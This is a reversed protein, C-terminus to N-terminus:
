IHSGKARSRRRRVQWTDKALIQEATVGHKAAVKKAMRTIDEQRNTVAAAFRRPNTKKYEKVQERLELVAATVRGRKDRESRLHGRGRGREFGPQLKLAFLLIKPVPVWEDRLLQKDAKVNLLAQTVDDVNQTPEDNYHEFLKIIQKDVRVKDTPAFGYTRQFLAQAPALDGTYKDYWKRLRLRPNRLKRPM